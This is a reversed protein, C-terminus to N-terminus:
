RKFYRGNKVVLKPHTSLAYLVIEVANPDTNKMLEPLDRKVAKRVRDVTIGEELKSLVAEALDEIYQRADTHFTSEDYFYDTKLAQKVEDVKNGANLYDRMYLCVTSIHCHTCMKNMPNHGNETGFEPCIQRHKDVNDVVGQLLYPELPNYPNEEFKNRM